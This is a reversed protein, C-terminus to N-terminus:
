VHARGIEYIWKADAVQQRVCGLSAKEGLANYEYTLMTSPDADRYCISHFLISGNFRCAYQGYTDDVMYHWKDREDYISFNGLPTAHGQRGTSCIMAKVPVTYYAADDLGYVTVTNQRRNVMIYYPCGNSRTSLARVHDAASAYGTLLSVLTLLVTLRLLLKKM